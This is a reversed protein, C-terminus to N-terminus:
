VINPFCTTEHKFNTSWKKGHYKQPFNMMEEISRTLNNTFLIGIKFFIKIRHFVPSILLINQPLTQFIQPPLQSNIRQLNYSLINSFPLVFHLFIKQSFPLNNKLSGRCKKTVFKRWLHSMEEGKLMFITGTLKKWM